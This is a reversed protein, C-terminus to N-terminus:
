KRFGEPQWFEHDFQVYRGSIENWPQDKFSYEGGVIHKYWQRAVFEPAKVHFQVYCHRFPSTHKHKALYDILKLDQARIEHIMNGFSVRASNVVTADNGMVDVIKVFGQGIDKKLKIQPGVYIYEELEPVYDIYGAEMLRGALQELNHHLKKHKSNDCVMLNKPTNDQKNLNIHHVMDNNGLPKGIKQEAVVHHEYRRKIEGSNTRIDHESSAFKYGFKYGFKDQSVTRKRGGNNQQKKIDALNWLDAKCLFRKTTAYSSKLQKALKGPKFNCEEFYKKLIDPRHVVWKTAHNKGTYGSQKQAFDEIEM